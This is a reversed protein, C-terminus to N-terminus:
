DYRVRPDVWALLFDALLNGIILVVGIMMLFSGALYMDQNVLANYFTPGMTPLNLVISAIIEGQILFPLAMGMYMVVPQIANRVAHKYIVVRESLGKARATEVYQQNLVDILNARMIRMNQATGALGIIVVPVWLHKLLDVFRAWSWPAIVYQPSFLGGVHTGVHFALFYMLVLAFFFNPISLGLFAFVTFVNDGVSYKHTASYIGIVVGVIVSVAHCLAAIILTWALRTWIVEGVPRNHQFSYGFDGRLVIGSVWQGYQVIFPRDLGYRSRMREAMDMAEARSMGAQSQLQLRVTTLYDGPPLNIVVFTILSVFVLLPISLIVRRILYSLM